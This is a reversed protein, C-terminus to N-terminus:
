PGKKLVLLQSLKLTARSADGHFKETAFKQM